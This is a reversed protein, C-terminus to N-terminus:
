ALVRFSDLYWVEEVGLEELLGSKKPTLEGGRGMEYFKVRSDIGLSLLLFKFFRRWDLNLSVQNSLFNVRNPLNKLSQAFYNQFIVGRYQAENQAFNPDSPCMKIIMTKDCQLRASAAAVNFDVLFFQIMAFFSIPSLFFDFNSLRRQLLSQIGSHHGIVLNRQDWHRLALSCCHRVGVSLLRNVQLGLVQHVLTRPGRPGPLAVSSLVQEFISLKNDEAVIALQRLTIGAELELRWVGKWCQTSKLQGM